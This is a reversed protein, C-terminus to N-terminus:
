LSMLQMLLAEPSSVICQAGAQELTKRSRFGWDVCICPLKANAATLIDVESDGVYIADGPEADLSSLVTYIPEPAPKKPIGDREGLVADFQCPFFQDILLQVAFDAKNSVVATRAGSRRLETLLWQIGPYPRTLDACHNRYHLRFDTYVQQYKEESTGAPLSRRILNRIGNGVDQRVQDLARIPFGGKVLAYNVSACLDELTNLITGDLDFIVTKGIM